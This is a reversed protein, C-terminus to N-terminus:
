EELNANKINELSANKNNKWMRTARELERELNKLSVNINNKGTANKSSKEIVNKNSWAQM